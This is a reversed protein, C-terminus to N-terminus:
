QHSHNLKEELPPLDKLVLRAIIEWTRKERALGVCYSDLLSLPPHPPPLLLFAMRSDFLSHRSFVSDINVLVEISCAGWMGLSRFFEGHLLHFRWIHLSSVHEVFNDPSFSCFHVRGYKPISATQESFTLIFIQWLLEYVPWRHVYCCKWFSASPYSLLKCCCPKADRGGVWRVLIPM